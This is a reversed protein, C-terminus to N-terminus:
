ALVEIAEKMEGRRALSGAEYISEGFIWARTWFEWDFYDELELANMNRLRHIEEEHIEALWAQGDETLSVYDFVADCEHVDCCDYSDVEDGAFLPSIYEAELDYGAEAAHHNCLTAVHGSGDEAFVYVGEYHDLKM